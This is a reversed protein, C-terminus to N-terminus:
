ATPLRNKLTRDFIEEQERSGSKAKKSKEAKDSKARELAAQWALEFVTPEAVVPEDNPMEFKESRGKGKKAGRKRDGREQREGGREHRPAEERVVEEPKPQTAKM